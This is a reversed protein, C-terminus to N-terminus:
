AIVVKEVIKSMCSFLNIVCYLKVLSLNQKVGKEYLIGCAKKQQKSQYRLRIANQIIATIQKSDWAWMMYLIRFNFKDPRLAKSISKTILAREMVKKTVKKHDVGSTIVSEINKSLLLKSFAFKKM